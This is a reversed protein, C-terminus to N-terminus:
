PVDKRYICFKCKRCIECPEDDNLSRPYGACKDINWWRQPEGIGQKTKERVLSCNEITKAAM